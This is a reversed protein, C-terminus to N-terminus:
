ADLGRAALAQRLPVRSGVRLISGEYIRAALRAMGVIGAVCLAMSLLAEWLSARGSIQLVTMAIPSTPPLYALVWYFAPVSESFIITFGVIYTVLIPLLIPFAMGQADEVRSVTAGAAANACCYFAYGLVLWAVAAPVASADVQSLFSAGTAYGAIVGTVALVAGHLLAVLGIGVLKGTLLDRARVSSLLVEVVRSSKEETVGTLVWTGYVQLLIFLLINAVLATGQRGAQQVDRQELVHLAPAPASLASAAESGSLGADALGGQVRLAERVARTLRAGDGSDGDTPTTKVLLSGDHLVALDVRGSRVWARATRDDPAARVSVEVNAGRAAGHITPAVYGPVGDVVGVPTTGSGSVLKPVVIVAAVALASLLLVVWFMRRRTRERIERTAVLV